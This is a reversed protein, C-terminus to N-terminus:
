FPIEDNNTAPAGDGPGAGSETDRPGGLFQVITAVVEHKSRTKGDETEWKRYQLRGDVMVPRGKRLYENCTEAQRGFVVIDVFLVEEKEEENQRYKRNVAIGFNAVATGSPLFRLEPDRTLNGMLIVKNYNAM